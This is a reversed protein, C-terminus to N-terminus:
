QLSKSVAIKKGEDVDDLAQRYGRIWNEEAVALLFEPFEKAFVDVIMQVSVSDDEENLQNGVYDVLWNKLETDKTINLEIYPTKM